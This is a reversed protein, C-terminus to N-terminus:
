DNEEELEVVAVALVVAEEADEERAVDVPTAGSRVAAKLGCLGEDKDEEADADAESSPAASLSM